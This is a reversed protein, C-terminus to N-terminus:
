QHETQTRDQHARLDPLTGPRFTEVVNAVTLVGFVAIAIIRFTLGEAPMLLSPLFLGAFAFPNSRRLSYRAITVTLLAANTVAILLMLGRYTDDSM